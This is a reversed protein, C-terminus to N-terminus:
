CAAVEQKQQLAKRIAERFRDPGVKSLVNSLTLKAADVERGLCAALTSHPVDSVRFGTEKESVTYGHGQLSKHVVFWHQINAIYFAFRRGEVQVVTGDAQTLKYNPM